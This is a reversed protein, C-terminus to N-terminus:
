CLVPPQLQEQVARCVAQAQLGLVIQVQDGQVVIGSGPLTRLAAEDLRATDRLTVRLRTM